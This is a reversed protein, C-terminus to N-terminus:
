KWFMGSRIIEVKVSGYNDDCTSDWYGLYLQGTEAVRHSYSSGVLFVRGTEINGVLAGFPFGGHPDTPSELTGWKQTDLGAPGSERKNDKDYWSANWKGTAKIDLWEGDHLYVGTKFMRGEDGPRACNDIASVAPVTIHEPLMFVKVLILSSLVVIGGCLVKAWITIRIKRSLRAVANVTDALLEGKPELVSVSRLYEPLSEFSTNEILVPIVHGAPRPWRKEALELETMTYSGSRLADASALFVFIDSRFLEKQIRSAFSDGPIISKQDIFVNFGTNSLRFALERAQDRQESAYSLFVKM